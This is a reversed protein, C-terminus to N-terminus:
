VTLQSFSHCLRSINVETQVWRWLYVAKREACSLVQRKPHVINHNRCIWPFGGNQKDLQKLSPAKCELELNVFPIGASRLIVALQQNKVAVLPKELSHLTDYIGKLITRIHKSDRAKGVPRLTLGHIKESQYVLTKQNRASFNELRLHTDFEINIETNLAVVSLERPYFKGKVAFGQCDLVACIQNLNNANSEM